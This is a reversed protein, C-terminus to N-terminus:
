ECLNTGELATTQLSFFHGTFDSIVLWSQLEPRTLQRTVITANIIYRATMNTFEDVDRVKPVKEPVPYHVNGESRM